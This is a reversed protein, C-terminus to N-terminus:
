TKYHLTICFKGSCKQSGGGKCCVELNTISKLTVSKAQDKETLTFLLINANGDGNTDAKVTMMCGSTNLVTVSGSPLPFIGIYRWYEVFEGNCNQKINGSIEDTVWEEGESPELPKTKKPYISPCGLPPLENPCVNQKKYTEKVQIM